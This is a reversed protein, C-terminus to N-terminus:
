NIRMKAYIGYVGLVLAVLMWQTGALGFVDTKYISDYASVAVALVSLGMLIDSHKKNMNGGGGNKNALSAVCPCFHSDRV